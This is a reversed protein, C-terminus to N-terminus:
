IPIEKEFNPFNEILKSFINCTGKAQVEEGEGIIM